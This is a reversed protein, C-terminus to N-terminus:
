FKRGISAAYIRCLLFHYPIPINTATIRSIAKTTTLTDRNTREIRRHLTVQQCTTAPYDRCRM